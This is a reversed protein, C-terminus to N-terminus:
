QTTGSRVFIEKRFHNPLDTNVYSCGCQTVLCDFTKWDDPDVGSHGWVGVTYRSALERMLAAGSETLMEKQFQLYVGDLSGDEKTLWSDVLSLDNVGVRMECPKKPPDSVTLLMLKPFQRTPDDLQALEQVTTAKEPRDVNTHDLNSQSLDMGVSAEALNVQSLSMGIGDVNNESQLRRHDISHSGITGFHDFSMLRRHSTSLSVAQQQQQQHHHASTSGLVISLESRLRHM